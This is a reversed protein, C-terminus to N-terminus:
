PESTAAASSQTRPNVHVAAARDRSSGSAACRPSARRRAATPECRRPSPTQNSARAHSTLARRPGHGHSGRPPDGASDDCLTSLRPVASSHPWRRTRPPSRTGTSPAAPPSWSRPGPATWSSPSGAIAAAVTRELYQQQRSTRATARVAAVPELPPFAGTTRSLAMAWAEPLLLDAAEAATDAVLVDLSVAVRAEHQQASPRFARRYAALAEVGPALDGGV